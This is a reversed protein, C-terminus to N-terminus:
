SVAGVSASVAKVTAKVIVFGSPDMSIDIVTQITVTEADAKVFRKINCWARSFWSGEDCAFSVYVITGQDLLNNWQGINAYWYEFSNILVDTYYSWIIQQEFTFTSTPVYGWVANKFEQMTAFDSNDL